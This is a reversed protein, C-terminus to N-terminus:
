NNGSQQQAEIERWKAVNESHEALTAAFAHGGTGDAVFFIYDTQAPNVAANIADAGPNAIPTPPMGEIVYTNYPTERRLESQRLGRGLVGEGNTIGYIVTPDTQLKMGQKLRNEFVSAVMPREEAVGTEKEIISAMILAEEKTDFPLGEARNEWAADLRAVQLEEMRAILEAVEAGPVFEYYDPALYGEAPIDTVDGELTSILNLNTVVQWSTVGEAVNVAFRTDTKGVVEAYKAPVDEAGLDFEAAVSFERTAPDLENVRAFARAVSITYVVQTGCTSVGSGTVTGLIDEMSSKEAILFSGAKLRDGADTYDVAINFISRSSIAGMDELQRAVKRMNSNPEVQLCVAAELPGEALYSNKGWIVVGGILFLIVVLFTLANSAINRWM